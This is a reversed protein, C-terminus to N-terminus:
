EPASSGPRWWTGGDQGVTEEAVRPGGGAPQAEVFVGGSRGDVEPAVDRADIPRGAPLHRPRDM